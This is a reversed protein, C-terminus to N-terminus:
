PINHGTSKKIIILELVVTHSNFFDRYERQWEWNFTKVTEEQNLFLKEALEVANSGKRVGKNYKNKPDISQNLASRPLLFPKFPHASEQVPAKLFIEFDFYLKGNKKIVYNLRMGPLFTKSQDSSIIKEENDVPKEQWHNVPIQEDGQYLIYDGSVDQEMSASSIIKFSYEGDIDNNDHHNRYHGNVTIVLRIEWWTGTGADTHAYGILPSLILLMIFLFYKWKM